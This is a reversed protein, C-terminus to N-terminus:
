YEDWSLDCCCCNFSLLQEWKTVIRCVTSWSWVCSSGNWEFNIMIYKISQNPHFTTREFRKDSMDKSLIQASLFLSTFQRASCIGFRANVTNKAKLRSIYILSHTHDDINSWPWTAHWQENEYVNQPTHVFNPSHFVNRTICLMKAM